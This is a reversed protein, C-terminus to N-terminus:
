LYSLIEGTRQKYTKIVYEISRSENSIAYLMISCLYTYKYVEKILNCKM